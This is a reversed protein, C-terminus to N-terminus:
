NNEQLEATIEKKVADYRDKLDKSIQASKNKVKRLQFSYYIGFIGLSLLSLATWYVISIGGLVPNWIMIISFILGALGLLFMGIWDTIGYSKLEFSTSMASVSRFMLGFGVYIPLLIVSLAPNSILIVGLILSLIGSFLLWGWNDIEKRNSISFVIEMIGAILFAFSFLLSLSLYSEVPTKFVYISCLIFLIGVILPIYWHNVANKVTKLLTPSM